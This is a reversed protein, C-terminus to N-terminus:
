FHNFCTASTLAAIAGADQVVRRTPRHRCELCGGPGARSATGDSARECPACVLHLSEPADARSRILYGQEGPSRREPRGDRHEHPRRRSRRLRGRARDLTEPLAVAQATCARDLVAVWCCAPRRAHAQADARTFTATCAKRSARTQAMDQASMSREHISLQLGFPDTLRGYRDGWFQRELPMTVSCGAAVALDWWGQGDAVVWQLTHNRSGRAPPENFEPWHHMLMIVGGKTEHGVHVIRDAGDRVAQGLVKAGWTPQYFTIAADAAALGLFPIVGKMPWTENQPEKM